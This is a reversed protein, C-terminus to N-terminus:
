DSVGLNFCFRIFTGTPDYRFQDTFKEWGIESLESLSVGSEEFDDRWVVINVYNDESGIGLEPDIQNFLALGALFNTNREKYKNM